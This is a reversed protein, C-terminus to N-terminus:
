TKSFKDLFYKSKLTNATEESIRSQFLDIEFIFISSEKVSVEKDGTMSRAEFSDWDSETLNRGSMGSLGAKTWTERRLVRYLSKEM